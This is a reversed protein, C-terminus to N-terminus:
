VPSTFGYGYQVSDILKKQVEPTLMGLHSRAGDRLQLSLAVLDEEAEDFQAGLAGLSDGRAFDRGLLPRSYAVSL